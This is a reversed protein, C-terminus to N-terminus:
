SGGDVANGSIDSDCLLIYLINLLSNVVHGLMILPESHAPLTQGQWHPEMLTGSLSHPCLSPPGVMLCYLWQSMRM